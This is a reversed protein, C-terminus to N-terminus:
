EAITETVMNVMVTTPATENSSSPISEKGVTQSLTLLDASDISLPTGTNSRRHRPKRIESSSPVRHSPTFPRPRPIGLSKAPPSDTTEEPVEVNIDPFGEPRSRGRPSKRISPSSALAAFPTTSSTESSPTHKIEMEPTVQLRLCDGTRSRRLGGSSSTSLIKPGVHKPLLPDRRQSQIGPFHPPRPTRHKQCYNVLEYLCPQLLKKPIPLSKEKAVNCLRQVTPEAETLSPFLGATSILVHLMTYFQLEKLANDRLIKQGSSIKKDVHAVLYLRHIKLVNSLLDVVREVLQFDLCHAGVM